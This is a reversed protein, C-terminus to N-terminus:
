EGTGGRKEQLLWVFLRVRICVSIQVCVRM